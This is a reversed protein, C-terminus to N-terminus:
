PAPSSKRFISFTTSSTSCIPAPPTSTAPFSSRSRTSLQGAPKRRAAPQSHPHFQAAHAARAVHEGPVRVQIELHAGARRGKGRARPAGARGRREQARGRREARRAAQAKTGLEENTQQLESQRSQLEVTLQQSQTLLGETRMTAEITNFVVGISQTLQDLFTLNVETFRMSRLWSSSPRPRDKSSCRCCSSARSAAGRRPQLLDHHFGAARRHAPHTEKGGRVPRRSRRRPPHTEAVASDRQACLEFAIPAAAEGDSGTLHYITGQQANVLPALETLLM